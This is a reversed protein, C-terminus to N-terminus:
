KERRERLSNQKQLWQETQGIWGGLKKGIEELPLSLLEFKKTDISQTEWLVILLIKLTDLKRLAARLYPLKDHKQMFSASTTM